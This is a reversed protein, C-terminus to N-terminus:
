YTGRAEGRREAGGRAKRRLTDDHRGDGEDWEAAEFLRAGGHPVTTDVCLGVSRSQSTQRDMFMSVERLWEAAPGRSGDRSQCLAVAEEAEDLLERRLAVAAEAEVGRRM